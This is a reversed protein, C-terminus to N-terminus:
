TEKTIGYNIEAETMERIAISQYPHIYVHSFHAQKLIIKSYIIRGDESIYDIIVPKHEEIIKIEIKTNV